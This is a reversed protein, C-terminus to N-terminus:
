GVADLPALQVREVQSEQLAPVLEDLAADVQGQLSAAINCQAVEQALDVKSAPELLGLHLATRPHPTSADGDVLKNGSYTQAALLRHLPILNLTHHRIHDVLYTSM